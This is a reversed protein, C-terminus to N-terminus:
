PSVVLETTGHRCRDSCGESTVADTVYAPSRDAQLVVQSDLRVEVHVTDPATPSRITLSDGSKRITAAQEPCTGSTSSPVDIECAIVDGVVPTITVQYVGPQAQSIAVRLTSSLSRSSYEWSSGSM